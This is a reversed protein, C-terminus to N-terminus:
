EGSKEKSQIPTQGALVGSLYTQLDCDSTIKYIDGDYDVYNGFVVSVSDIKRHAHDFFTLQYARAFMGVKIKELTLSQLTECVGDVVAADTIVYDTYTQDVNSFARVEIYSARSLDGIQVSPTCGVLSATLVLAFLLLSLIRKM